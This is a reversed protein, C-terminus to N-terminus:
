KLTSANLFRLELRRFLHQQEISVYLTTFSFLFKLEYMVHIYHWRKVIRNSGRSAYRWSPFSVLDSVIRKCLSFMTRTRLLKSGTSPKANLRKVKEFGCYKRHWLIKSNSGIWFIHRLRESTKMSFPEISPVTLKLLLFLFQVSKEFLFLM